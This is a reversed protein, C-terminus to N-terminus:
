DHLYKRLTYRTIKLADAAKSSNDGYQGHSIRGPAIIGNVQAQDRSDYNIIM